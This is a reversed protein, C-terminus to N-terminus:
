DAAIANVQSHDGIAVTRRGVCQQAAGGSSRHAKEKYEAVFDRAFGEMDPFLAEETIGTVLLLEKRLAAKAAKPIVIKHLFSLGNHQARDECALRELVDREFGHLTYIGRQAIMRNVLQDPSVAIPSEAGLDELREPASLPLFRKVLSNDRIVTRWSGKLGRLEMLHRAAMIWVSGDKDDKEQTRASFYAAVALSRSWDLFRTPFGFQQMILFAQWHTGVERGLLPMSRLGFEVWLTNELAWLGREDKPYPDRLLGPNLDYESNEAGRFCIGPDEGPWREAWGAYIEATVDSLMNFCGAEFTVPFASGTM